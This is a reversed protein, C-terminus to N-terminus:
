YETSGSGDGCIVAAIAAAVTMVVVAEVAMTDAVMTAAVVAMAVESAPGCRNACISVQFIGCLFAACFCRCWGHCRADVRAANVGHSEEFVRSGLARDKTQPNDPRVRDRSCM